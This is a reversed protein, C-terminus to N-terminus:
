QARKKGKTQRAEKADPEPSARDEIEWAHDLAHWITRRITYRPTWPNKTNRPDALPRGHVRADISDLLISRLATVHAKRDGARKPWRSGLQGLYAEEAEIVHDVIRDLDRGGGRPGKRLEVGEASRASRDFAGWAAELLSILRKLERDELPDDDDPWPSSPVGFDTGADGKVRRTVKLDAAGAPPVLELGAKRALAAYRPGYALLAELADEQTRGARAWGPWDRASAFTRKSGTEIVVDTL